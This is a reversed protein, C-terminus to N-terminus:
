YNHPMSAPKPLGNAARELWALEIAVRAAHAAWAALLALPRASAAALLALALSALELALRSTLLALPRRRLQELALGLSPRADHGLVIAVRSLSFLTRAALMAVACLAVLAYTLAFFPGPAPSLARAISATIAPRIALAACALLALQVLAVAVLSPTRAISRAWPNDRGRTALAPLVGHLPVAILAYLIVTLAIMAAASQLAGQQLVFLEIAIRGGEAALAEGGRPDHALPAAIADALIAGLMLSALWEVTSLGAAHAFMSRRSRVADDSM